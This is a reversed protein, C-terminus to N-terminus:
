DLDMGYNVTIQERPIDLIFNRRTPIKTVFDRIYPFLDVIWGTIVEGGYASEPKCTSKWFNLPPNGAVTDIFGDCIPILRQTWWDLEYTALFDIRDRIKRWDEVTNNNIHQAFGQASTMWIADPTLLLPRHESFALHVVSVLSCNGLNQVVEFSNDHSFALLFTDIKEEFQQRGQQTSLLNQCPQVDDVKFTIESHSRTIIQALNGM